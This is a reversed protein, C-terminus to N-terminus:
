IRISKLRLCLFYQRILPEGEVRAQWLFFDLKKIDTFHTCRPFKRDFRCTLNDFFPLQTIAYTKARLECYIEEAKEIRKIGRRTGLEGLDLNKVVLDDYVPLEPNITAILKSSFSPEVQQRGAHRAKNCFILSFMGGNNMKGVEM